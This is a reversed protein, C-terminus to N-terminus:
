IGKQCFLLRGYGPLAMLATGSSVNMIAGSHQKLMFPIVAQMAVLPGIVNWIL